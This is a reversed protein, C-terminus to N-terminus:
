NIVFIEADPDASHAWKFCNWLISDGVTNRLHDAHGTLPENIVDYEKIIGKYRTMERTIRMKCTDTIAQPTTLNRVWAPMSHDDNGGWLLNHARLDWGVKQPGTYPMKSIQITQHLTNPNFVAGNSHIVPLEM